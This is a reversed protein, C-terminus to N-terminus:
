DLMGRLVDISMQFGIDNKLGSKEREAMIHQIMSIASMITNRRVFQNINQLERANDRQIFYDETM